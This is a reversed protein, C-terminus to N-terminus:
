RAAVVESQAYSRIAAGVGAGPTVSVGSELLVKELAALFFLVHKAQSVYGMLGVRWIKNKLAGIGGAVEIGFEELLQRRLRVDDCGAPVYVSTVTPLRDAPNQVLLELGLAELGAILGV